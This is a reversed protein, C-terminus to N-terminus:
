RELDVTNVKKPTDREVTKSRYHSFCTVAVTNLLDRGAETLNARQDKATSMLYEKVDMSLSKFGVMAQNIVNHVRKKDEGHYCTDVMRLMKGLECEYTTGNSHRLLKANADLPIGKYKEYARYMTVPLVSKLVGNGAEKTYKGKRLITNYSNNYVDKEFEALSKNQLAPPLSYNEAQYISYVTNLFEKEGMASMAQRDEKLTKPNSLQKVDEIFAEDAKFKTMRGIHTDALVSKLEVRKGYDVVFTNVLEHIDEFKKNTVKSFDLEKLVNCDKNYKITEEQQNHAEMHTDIHEIVNLVEKLTNKDLVFNTKEVLPTKSLMNVSEAMSAEILFGNPNELYQEASMVSAGERAKFENISSAIDMRNEDVYAVVDQITNGVLPMNSKRDEEFVLEVLEKVDRISEQYDSWETDIKDFLYDRVNQQFNNLAM